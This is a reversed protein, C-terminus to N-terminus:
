DQRWVYGLGLSLNNLGYSSHDIEDGVVYKYKAQVYLYWLKLYLGASIAFKLKDKKDGNEVWIKESGSSSNNESFLKYKRRYEFGLGADAWLLSEVININFGLICDWSFATNEHEDIYKNTNNATVTNGDYTLSSSREHGSFSPAGFENDIFFATTTNLWGLSIGIPSNLSGLYGLYFGNPFIGLATKVKRATSDRKAQAELEKQKAYEAVKSGPWYYEMANDHVIKTSSSGLIIATKVDLLKISFNYTEGDESIAGAVIIQAGIKSGISVMTEDSVEGSYQFKIEQQILDLKSRDVFTINKKNRVVYDPIREMVYDSLSISDSKINVVALVSNNPARDIIYASEREIAEDLTDIAYVTGVAFCFFLLWLWKFTNKLM